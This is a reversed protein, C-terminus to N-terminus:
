AMHKIAYKEIADACKALYNIPKILPIRVHYEGKDGFAIGPMIALKHEKMIGECFEISKQGIAEINPFVYFAGEPTTCTIGDIENLRKVLYDRRKLYENHFREVPEWKSTLATVGAKQIFAAPRSGVPLKRLLSTISEDAMLCGLRWGTMAFTKSFSLIVITREKMGPLAAISRHKNDDWVFQDYIEDSLVLLDNKNSIKTIEALEKETFVTGTPNNPSCIIIMKTKPTVSRYLDDLDIHYGEEEILQVPTVKLNLYQVLPTYGMYFPNFLIIEDGRNLTGIIAIYLAPIAGGTVIVEDPKWNTDYRSHYNALAEKLEPIGAKVPYHTWGEEIAKFAADIIHRPTEFDPDGGLLTMAGPVEKAQAVKKQFLPAEM